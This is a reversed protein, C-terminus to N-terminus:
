MVFKKKSLRVNKFIQYILDYFHVPKKFQRIKDLGYHLISKPWYGHNKPKPPSQQTLIERM